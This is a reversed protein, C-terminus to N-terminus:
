KWKKKIVYFMIIGVVPCVTALVITLTNNTPESSAVFTVTDDENCVAALQTEVTFSSDRAIITIVRPGPEDCIYTLVHKPESSEFTIRTDRIGTGQIFTVNTYNMTFRGGTSSILTVQLIDNEPDQVNITLQDNVLSVSMVPIQNVYFITLNYRGLPSRNSGSQIYYTFSDTGNFGTNPHYNVTDNAISVLEGFLPPTEIHFTFIDQKSDTGRLVLSSNTIQITQSTVQLNNRVFITLQAVNSTLGQTDILEFSLTQNVFVDQGSVATLNGANYDFSTGILSAVIGQTSVIRASVISEGSLIPLFIRITQGLIINFVGNIALPYRRTDEGVDITIFGPRGDVIGDNATIGIVAYNIGSTRPDITFTFSSSTLTYPLTIPANNIVGRGVFSTIQVTIIQNLHLDTVDFDSVDLQIVRTDVVTYRASQVVPLSNPLGAEYNQLVEADSL